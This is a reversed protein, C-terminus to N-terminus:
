PQLKKEIKLSLPPLAEVPAVGPPLIMVPTLALSEQTAGKELDEATLPLYATVRIEEKRIRDIADSPGTLAVDRLFLNDKGLIVSFRAFEAPPGQVLVPVLPVVVTEIQKRIKLTVKASPLDVSVGANRLWDPPSLAVDLTHPVNPELRALVKADLRAEVSAQTLSKALSAPVEIEVKAPEVAATVQVDGSIVEVPLVIKQLPEVSIQLTAPQVETINIGLNSLPSNSALHDKLVVVKRPDSDNPDDHVILPIPGSRALREVEAFKAAACRMLVRVRRPQAPKIVLQQGQPAVFQIDVDLAQPKVNESEAYLWVICTMITVVFFTKISNWM